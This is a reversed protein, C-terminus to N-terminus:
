QQGSLEETQGAVECLRRCGSLLCILLHEVATFLKQRKWPEVGAGKGQFYRKVQKTALGVGWDKRALFFRLDFASPRM